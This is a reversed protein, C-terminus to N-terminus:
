NPMFPFPSVSRSGGEMDVLTHEWGARFRFDLGRVTSFNTSLGARLKQSTFLFPGSDATDGADGPYRDQFCNQVTESHNLYRLVASRLGLEAALASKEDTWGSLLAGDATLSWRQGLDDQSWTFGASSKIGYFWPSDRIYPVRFEPGAELKGNAPFGEAFLPLSLRARWSLEDSFGSEQEYELAIM